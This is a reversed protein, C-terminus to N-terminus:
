SEDSHRKIQRRDTGKWFEETQLILSDHGQSTFSKKSELTETKSFTSKKSFMKTISHLLNM